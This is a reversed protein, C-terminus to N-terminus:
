IQKLPGYVAEYFEDGYTLPQNDIHHKHQDESGSDYAFQIHQQFVEEADAWDEDTLKQNYEYRERLRQIVTKNKATDTGYRESINM